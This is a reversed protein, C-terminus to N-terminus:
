YITIDTLLLKKILTEDAPMHPETYMEFADSGAKQTIYYPPNTSMRPIYHADGLVDIVTLKMGKVLLYDRQGDVKIPQTKDIRIIFDEQKPNWSITDHIEKNANSMNYRVRKTSVNPLSSDINPDIDTPPVDLFNALKIITQPSMETIDNLYQSFAGQTWDLKAAAEVQTINMERKKIDWIRRLNEVPTVVKKTNM